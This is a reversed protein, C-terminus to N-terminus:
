VRNRGADKAVYLAADAVDVLGRGVRADEPFTSVGISVTNRAATRGPRQPAAAIAGRIKEAVESAQTKSCSPLLVAFEEGGYRFAMDTSRVSKMLHGAVRRLAADGETHGHHDNYQKFHDIDLLLLSLQRGERDCRRMEKD